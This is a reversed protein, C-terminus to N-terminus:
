VPFAFSINSHGSGDSLRSAPPNGQGNSLYTTNAGFHDGKGNVGASGKSAVKPTEYAEENEVSDKGMSSSSKRGNDSPAEIVVPLSPLDNSKTETIPPLTSLSNMWEEPSKLEGSKMLNFQERSFSNNGMHISFLSENSAVSWEMATAPKTVFVSSPIRHPDYGTPRGMVQVPPSVTPLATSSNWEPTPSQHDDQEFKTNKEDMDLELPNSNSSSSSSSFSASSSSSLRFSNDQIFPNGNNNTAEPHMTLHKSSGSENESGMKLGVSSLRVNGKDWCLYNFETCCLLSVFYSCILKNFM